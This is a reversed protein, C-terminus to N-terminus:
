KDKVSVGAAELYRKVAKHRPGNLKEVIDSISKGQKGLEIAKDRVATDYKSRAGRKKGTSKAAKKSTAKPNKRAKEKAMKLLDNGGKLERSLYYTIPFKNYCGKCRSNYVIAYAIDEVTYFKRSEKCNICHSSAIVKQPQQQQLVEEM